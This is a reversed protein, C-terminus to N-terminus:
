VFHLCLHMSFSKDECITEKPLHRCTQPLSMLGPLLIFSPQAQRPINRCETSKGSRYNNYCQSSCRKELGSQSFQVAQHQASHSEFKCTLHPSEQDGLSRAILMNVACGTIRKAQSSTLGPFVNSPWDTAAPQYLAGLNVEMGSDLCNALKQQYSLGLQGEAM